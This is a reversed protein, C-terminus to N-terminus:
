VLKLKQGPRITDSTLGNLEKLKQVTTNNNRAIGWLTDKDKVVYPMPTGSKRFGDQSKDYGFTHIGIKLDCLKGWTDKAGQNDNKQSYINRNGIQPDPVFSGDIADNALRVCIKWARGDPSKESTNPFKITYGTPSREDDSISNWGSFQKKRLCMDAFKTADGGARNWIVTMIRRLGAAGESRDEDYLTRAVINVVQSRKWRGIKPDSVKSKGVAKAIDSKTVTAFKGNVQQVQKEKAIRGMEDKFRETNVLGSSGIMFVLMSLSVLKGIGEEMLKDDVINLTLEANVQREVKKWDM